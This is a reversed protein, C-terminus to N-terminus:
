IKIAEQTYKVGTNTLEINSSSTTGDDQCCHQGLNYHKGRDMLHLVWVESRSLGGGGVEVTEM